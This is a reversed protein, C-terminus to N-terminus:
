HTGYDTGLWTGASAGIYACRRGGEKGGGRGEKGGGRM